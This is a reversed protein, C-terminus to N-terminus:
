RSNKVQQHEHCPRPGFYRLEICSIICAQSPPGASTRPWTGTCRVTAHEEAGKLLELKRSPAGPGMAGHIMGRSCHLQIFKFENLDQKPARLGRARAMSWRAPGAPGAAPSFLNLSSMNPFSLMVIAADRPCPVNDGVYRISMFFFPKRQPEVSMENAYFTKSIGSTEAAKESHTRASSESLTAGSRQLFSGSDRDM